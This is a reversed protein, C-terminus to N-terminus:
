PKADETKKWDERNIETESVKSTPFSELGIRDSGVIVKARYVKQRTYRMFFRRIAIKAFPLNPINFLEKHIGVALPVIDNYSVPFCVSYHEQMYKLITKYDEDKIFYKNTKYSSATIYTTINPTHTSLKTKVPVSSSHNQTKDFAAKDKPKLETNTKIKAKAKIEIQKSSEINETSETSEIIKKKFGDLTLISKKTM